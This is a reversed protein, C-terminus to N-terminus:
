FKRNVTAYAHCTAKSRQEFRDLAEPTNFRITIDVSNPECMSFILAVAEADVLERVFVGLAVDGKFHLTAVHDCSLDGHLRM